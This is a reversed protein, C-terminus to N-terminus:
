EITTFFLFRNPDIHQVLVPTLSSAWKPSSYKPIMSVKSYFHTAPFNHMPSTRIKFAISLAMQWVKDEDTVKKNLYYFRRANEKNFASFQRPDLIVDEYTTKGNYALRLRNEIVQGVFFMETSDNTESYIGRALWITGPDYRLNERRLTDILIYNAEIEEQYRLINNELIRIEDTNFSSLLFFGFALVIVAIVRTLTEM